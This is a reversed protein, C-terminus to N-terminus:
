SPRRGAKKATPATNEQPSAPPNGKCDSVASIDESELESTSAENSLSHEKPRAIVKLKKISDKAEKMLWNVTKSAKDYGLMDQINFFQSAVELNLRMRRDRPGQATVIKSHRDKRTTRKRGIAVNAKKHPSRAEKIPPATPPTLPSQAEAGLQPFVLDHLTSDQNLEPSFPFFPSLPRSEMAFYPPDPNYPFMTTTYIMYGLVWM